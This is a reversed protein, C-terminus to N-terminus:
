PRFDRFRTRGASWKHAVNAAAQEPTIQRTLARHIEQRFDEIWTVTWPAPVEGKTLSIQRQLVAPDGRRAMASVVDPDRWLSKYGGFLHYKMMWDKRVTYAGTNDRGGFFEILKWARERDSAFLTTAYGRSWGVTEHTRGPMLAVATKDVVRSVRADFIQALRYAPVMGIASQGNAFVQWNSAEDTELSKPNIIKSEYLGDLLWRVQRVFPSNIRQLVPQYTKPDIIDGGESFTMAYLQYAITWQLGLPLSIPFDIVGASKLKLAADRLDDWTEPFQAIGARQFMETNYVPIWVTTYYPLAYLKGQHTWFKKFFDEMDEKYSALKPRAAAIDDLPKIWGAYVFPLFSYDEIYMVDVRGRSMFTSIMLANYQAGTPLAGLEVRIGTAKEFLAIHEKLQDVAFSWAYLVISEQPAALGQAVLVLVLGLAFVLAALSVRVRAGKMTRVEPIGV